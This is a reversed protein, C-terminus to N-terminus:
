LEALALLAYGTVLAPDEELWRSSRVNTWSGDASQLQFLMTELERRWDRSRGEGDVVQAADYAELARALTLYYYFLGQYPADKRAGIKFGPNVEVTFNRCIWEFAAAVRPDSPDLGSFLYSKLLAYTMS